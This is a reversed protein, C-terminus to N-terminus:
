SIMTVYLEDLHHHLDHAGIISDLIDIPCVNQMNSSLSVLRAWEIVENCDFVHVNILSVISTACREM